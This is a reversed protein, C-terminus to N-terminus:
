EIIPRVSFGIYRSTGYRTVYDSRLHVHWASAPSLTYVSSSWYHGASGANKLTTGSRNGAAPLFVSNGNNATVLQGNIGSGNYNTVWTWTCNDRLETWEADTPIRWKGGLAQRAADDEYDYDKFETKNDVTGYRSDNNYKTLTRYSGECLQYTAWSYDDKPTTEGPTTEGWAYYEGYDTPSDAGLNTSSWKVSLGLDIADGAVPNYPKRVQVACSAYVNSGDNATAKVTATGIAVASVKGSDDVTAISSDLSSWTYSKDNANDPLISIVSLTEFGGTYLILTAKNLQIDTVRQKVEVNCTAKVGSGDNASVTITAFGRANGTIAGVSSVTAITADSTSWSIARNDADSPLVTATLAQTQGDHITLSTLALSISSVMRHVTILCTASKGSGDNATATITATGKSVARVIGDENVTAVTKKSSTWTVSKDWANDPSITATLLLSDGEAMDLTSNDLYVGTVQQQVTVSCSDQADSRDNAKVFITTSGNGIATVVGTSDVTAVSEDISSWIVTKDTANAPLITVSLEYKDGIAAFSHKNNNLSVSEVPIDDTFFSRIEGYLVKDDLMVFAKYWYQTIDSLGTLTASFVSGKIVGGEIITNQSSETTGWYFGYSISKYQIDELNLKANLVASTGNVESAEFTELLSQVTATKFSKVEGYTDEGKQRVFSRYYYTTEPDLGTIGASYNYDADAEAVEITTSNAPLIGASKSYQFGLTLDQSVTAGLNAKGLLVASIASVHETGITVSPANSTSGKGNGDDGVKQEQECAVLMLLVAFFSVLVRVVRDTDKIM